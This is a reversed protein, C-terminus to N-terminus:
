QFIPSNAEKTVGFWYQAENEDIDLVKSVTAKLKECDAKCFENAEEITPKRAGLICVSNEDEDNFVIEYFNVKTDVEYM